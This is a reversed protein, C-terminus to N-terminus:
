GNTRHSHPIWRGWKAEYVAKNKEFLSQRDRSPLKDFSASLHHYIFTDEACVIRLGKQEVRRCYDDDEFFGQGFMEDLPGVEDYVKRPMMVCFFAATRLSITQGIHRRTYQASTQLMDDMSNFNIDIRAENGINNTVPGILGISKDRKLHNKLTRIWGPTVYTDNNLLTLYQGTAIDLGQNNAAAFGLNNDNLIIKRGPGEESWSKLFEQTEDSSANDVVIIELNPYHTHTEISKLCERTLPLNNYTVIIVSVLSDYDTSKVYEILSTVRHSWTQNKAFNQRTKIEDISPPNKLCNAVADLFSEFDGAIQVIGEFQKMEPLDVAVVSRGASLYEYVKVPNTALTLPIVKFPLMCVDFGHLYYPLRDYPVEGTFKVNPQRGLKNKANATDSGILLITCEPFRKAVAEVLDQDFWEAIAGFYGIVPHGGPDHYVDAPKRSFHDFDGANRIIQHSDSYKSVMQDLWTSTTIVLDATQFLKVELELIDKANNEFGEHHDMCDYVIRSDPIKTAVDYWFSHQVLSVIDRADAWELMKGAGSCIQSIIQKCPASDYISPADKAFLKIEFLRGERDIPIVTFGSRTDDEMISSIYFVRHGFDALLKAIHQPRQRRFHWNIVGWVIYDPKSPQQMELLIGSPPHFPIDAKSDRHIRLIPKLFFMLIGGIIKKVFFPVPLHHYKERLLQVIRQRDEPLFGYRCIRASLRLPSTFRWSFSNRMIRVLEQAEQRTLTQKQLESSLQDQATCAADREAFAADREAFATDREAFAADREALATDREAFAADREAITKEKVEAIMEDLTLNFKGYTPLKYCKTKHNADDPVAKIIYQYVDGEVRLGLSYSVWDPLIKWHKSFETKEAPIRMRDIDVVGLGANVLAKELSKWGFFRIHTKDLLGVPHYEFNETLLEAIIGNHTMNPVSLVVCGGPALFQRMNALCRWPDKLHEIVDAALVVDFRKENLLLGWDMTDIDSIFLEHCYPKAHKASEANIEVASVRCKNHEVLAKTMVGYACGLELVNKDKGVMRVVRTATSDDKLDIVYNYPSATANKITKGPTRSPM